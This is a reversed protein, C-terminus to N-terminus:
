AVLGAFVTFNKARLCLFLSLCRSTEAMLVKKQFRRAAILFPRSGIVYLSLGDVLSLPFPPRRRLLHRPHNPNTNNTHPTKQQTTARPFSIASSYFIMPMTERPFSTDRCLFLQCFLSFPPQIAEPSRTPKAPSWSHRYLSLRFSPRSLFALIFVDGHIPVQFVFRM